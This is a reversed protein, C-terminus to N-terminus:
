LNSPAIPTFPPDILKVRESEESKGLAGTVRALQHREALDSYINRRVEIERLLENLRREHEGFGNVKQTLKQAESELSRIEEELREVQNQANQLKELQSVLLPQVGNQTQFSNSSAINWLRDLDTEKLSPSQQLVKSRESELAALKRVKAQVQTHQDTYRARLTTLEAMTDVIAEEIKGVVPNTLSLRERVKNEEARAGELVTRRDALLSRLHSLRTVNSAHLEPLESAFQSKYRALEEESQTLDSRRKELETELFNQSQVISSRQPAIVREVFRISVLKLTEAMDKPDGATYTIKILDEGVLKSKLARSLKAIEQNRQKEPMEANILKLKFAVETLIHRSHLLANLAEMRSKLNTAIALDELFPNQKAAEQILITTYTEYKKPSLIGIALGIIPMIMIPVCILYRRRWVAWLINALHYQLENRM